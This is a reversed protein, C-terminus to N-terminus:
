GWEMNWAHIHSEYFVYFFVLLCPNWQIEGGVSHPILTDGLREPNVMCGRNSGLIV